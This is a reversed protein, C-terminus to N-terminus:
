QQKPEASEPDRNDVHNAGHEENNAVNAEDVDLNVDNNAVNAEDVDLNQAYVGAIDDALHPDHAHRENNDANNNDDTGPIHMTMTPPYDDPDDDDNTM